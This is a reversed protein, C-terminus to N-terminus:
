GDTVGPSGRLAGFHGFISIRCGYKALGDKRNTFLPVARKFVLHKTKRTLGVGDGEQTPADSM